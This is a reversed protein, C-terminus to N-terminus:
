EFSMKMWLIIFTNSTCIIISQGIACFSFGAFKLQELYAMKCLKIRGLICRIQMIYIYCKYM